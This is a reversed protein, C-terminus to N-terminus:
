RRPRPVRRRARAGQRQRGAVGDGLVQHGTPHRGQTALARLEPHAGLDAVGGLHDGAAARATRRRNQRLYRVGWPTEVMADDTMVLQHQDRRRVVRQGAGPRKGIRSSAAHGSTVRSAPDPVRTARSWASAAVRAAM